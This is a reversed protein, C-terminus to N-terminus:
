LLESLIAKVDDTYKIRLLKIDHECCWKNKILDRSKIVETNNFKIKYRKMNVEEFHQAGDFEIVMNRCPIYFDFVLHRKNKCGDFKKQEEFVINHEILWQRIRLEGISARCKPCGRGSLHSGIAQKFIGHAPCLIPVKTSYNIYGEMNCYDYKNSHIKSARQIFESITIALKQSTTQNACLQCGMGLLHSNATQEFEGHIPCVITVKDQSRSYVVKSYDYKDGHKLKSREIFQETTFAFKDHLNDCMCAKCGSGRLHSMAKQEFEGHISCRIIVKTNVSDYIVKSYDYKDGHIKIAEAIFEDKTKRRKDSRINLACEPCDQKLKNIKKEFLGHEKCILKIPTSYTEYKVLSYDYKDGHYEKLRSILIETTIFGIRAM